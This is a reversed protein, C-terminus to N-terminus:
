AYEFSSLKSNIWEWVSSDARGYYGAAAIIIAPGAPGQTVGLADSLERATGACSVLWQGPGVRLSDHPFAKEVVPALSDAPALVAFISRLQVYAM